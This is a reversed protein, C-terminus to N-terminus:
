IFFFMRMGHLYTIYSVRPDIVLYTHVNLEKLYPDRLHGNGEEVEYAKNLHKLTAETIHVRRLAHVHVLIKIPKKQKRTKMKQPHCDLVVVWGPLGGSEMHNALTVDHSWVDFQWKRLGIVGCLVNGSHVGVRMNIDVGTAERVQRFFNWWSTLALTPLGKHEWIWLTGKFDDQQEEKLTSRCQWWNHYYM